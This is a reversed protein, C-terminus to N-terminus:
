KSRASAARWHWWTEGVQIPTRLKATLRAQTDYDDYVVPEEIWTLGFDDIARCVDRPRSARRCPRISISRSMMVGPGVAERIARLAALDDAPHARGLRVKIHQFGGHEAVM